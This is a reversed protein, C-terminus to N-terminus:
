KGNWRDRAIIEAKKRSTSFAFISILCRACKVTAIYGPVGEFNRGDRSYIYAKGGCYKCDGLEQEPAVDAGAIAEQSQKMVEKMDMNRGGKKDDYQWHIM